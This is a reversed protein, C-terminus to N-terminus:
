AKQLTSKGKMDRYRSQILVSRLILLLLAFIEGEVGNVPGSLVGSLAEALGTNDRISFMLAAKM